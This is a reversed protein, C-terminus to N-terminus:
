STNEPPPPQIQLDPDQARWARLAPKYDSKIMPANWGLKRDSDYLKPDRGEPLRDKPPMDILCRIPLQVAEGVVIAEGTRLIPLTALLGELNDAVASTVHGRDTANSLRMAFITGCQALITPDIEAPRQSVVMAGIGYKRGEKVIRRVAGSAAGGANGPSLYTHAEELVVLLPRTRTGQPTKRSWFMSDYVIRLVAGIVHNVVSAPVGSLDLITIPKEGGLWNALLLDLDATPLEDPRPLWAGPRFLFSYRPDRLRSGLADINRRMNPVNAALYIKTGGAQTHPKFRPPRVLLANGEEVPTGDPNELLAVTSQSQGGSTTHTAFILRHFHFWLEHISFPIPTDATIDSESIGDLPRKAYSARKFEHVKDLVAGRSTDDLDGFTIAMLEDFTMAWYPVELAFEDEGPSVRFVNARDRLAMAYEGHMDILMIRASPFVDPDSLTHLLGAVTTSKGAGTSGVIASHRVVLRNLDVFAPISEASAISGIRIWNPGARGYIRGLDGETVLHAVDGVTPYQSIGRKFETRRYSEGVLQVELWRRGHPASESEAEPVPGAGVRSVIGFLDVYGMPIRIFSGVQGIRYALGDVFALGAVTESDLVVHVSAGKVQAVPGLKTPDRM